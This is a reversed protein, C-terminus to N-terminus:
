AAPVYTRCDAAVDLTLVRASAAHAAPQMAILTDFSSLIGALGFPLLAFAVFSFRIRNM